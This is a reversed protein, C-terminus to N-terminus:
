PPPPPPVSTPRPPARSPPGAPPAPPIPAFSPAPPASPPPPPPPARTPETPMSLTQRRPAPPPPAKRKIRQEDPTARAAAQQQAFADVGGHADVFQKVFEENGKLSSAAIGMNGLTELLTKWSPDVGTSSFGKEADYGMHAVHKFASPASIMSKDIKGGKKKKKKSSSPSEPAAAVAVPAAAKKSSKARGEVKKRMTKAEGEDAFVLGVMCKDGEFSYFFPRDENYGFPEYLEHEWIVGRTGSLDIMKFWNSNRGKDFVLALGGQMGAYTWYNPDPHAYYVRALAATAVKNNPSPLANKIKAKDDSSIAPM